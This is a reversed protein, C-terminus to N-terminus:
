AGATKERTKADDWLSNKEEMDLAAFERGSAAAREEMYAFRSLFRLTSKHLAANAKVGKRRGLEVLTFLLDGLEQETADADNGAAADLYELWEAEFQQEVDVDSDWTFGAKAAKSHIRYAKLLPPLSDPLSAFIGSRKEAKEAKEAKKIQEWTQLLQERSSCDQGAFVHPHRRTMKDAAEHLVRDLSFEGSYLLAIFLILFLTDGMEERVEDARGRRVADILEFTEEALYDCLSLPTQEKDWPCGEPGVLTELVGQLRSLASAETNM